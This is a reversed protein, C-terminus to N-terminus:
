DTSSFPHEWLGAHSLGLPDARHRSPRVRVGGDPGHAARPAAAAPHGLSSRCARRSFGDDAVASPSIPAFLWQIPDRSLRARADWQISSHAGYAGDSCAALSTAPPSAGHLWDRSASRPVYSTAPAAIPPPLEPHAPALLPRMLGPHARA